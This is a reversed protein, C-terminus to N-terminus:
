GVTDDCVVRALRAQQKESGQVGVIVWDGSFAGVKGLDRTRLVLTAEEYQFNAGGDLAPEDLSKLSFTLPDRKPDTNSAPRENEGDADSKSRATTAAAKSSSFVTSALFNEDIELELNSENDYDETETQVESGDEGVGSVTVDERAGEEEGGDQESAEDDQPPIIIFKTKGREAVGQLVPEAMLVRYRYAFASATQRRPPGGGETGNAVTGNSIGNSGQAAFAYTEGQRIIMKTAVNQPEGKSDVVLVTKSDSSFWDEVQTASSELVGYASNSLAVIFLETLIPPRTVAVTHSFFRWSDTSISEDGTTAYAPDSSPLFVQPYKSQVPAPITILNSSAPVKFSGSVGSTLHGPYCLM